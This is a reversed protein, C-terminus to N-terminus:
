PASIASMHLWDIAWVGHARVLVQTVRFRGSTPKGAYSGRSDQVGIAVATDGYGRVQVDQWTLSETVIGGASHRQLWARKDLQFGLPGVGVFGDTLLTDLASTDGRLEADTWRKGLDLIEAAPSDTQMVENM